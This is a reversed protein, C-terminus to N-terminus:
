IKGVVFYLGMGLLLALYGIMLFKATFAGPRNTNQHTIYLKYGILNALSGFLSGFGGVNTGWLLAKWHSTFKAFVLAAPVNSMIQSAIVSFLFVHESQRVESALLIKMNEALGFFFFFSLLLAYDVRLSKRDFLAAYLIVLSISFVSFIRLVSLLVIVLLFGYIFSSKGIKEKLSLPQVEIKTKILISFVALLLLFFVSFPAIASLFQLPSLDYFWYLFLNQPNGFPTFASGANAALVELIVLIDRRNLKLSLTLPVTMILAVDNTVVMSLFFTALVLKFSVFKGREIQQSLMRLFGSRELGKVAIFLSLLIFLLEIEQVSYAPLRGSYISTLAFGAASAILLWEKLVFNFLESQQKM